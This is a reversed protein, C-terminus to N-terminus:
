RASLYGVWPVFRGVRRAYALYAGPHVRALHPEEVHRVHIELGVVLIGLAVASLPNPVMLFFGTTALLVASFIPNRVIGFVGTTVLATTERSDVGVRWSDRMQLQAVITLVFGLSVLVLGSRNVWARDMAAVPQVLDMLEAAAAAGTLMAGAAVLFGGAWEVSGTRGTLGRFGHDGTRRYQLWSRWGFAVAFFAVYIALALGPM